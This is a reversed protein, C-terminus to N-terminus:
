NYYSYIYIINSICLSHSFNPEGTFDWRQPLAVAINQQTKRKYKYIGERVEYVGHINIYTFKFVLDPYYKIHM